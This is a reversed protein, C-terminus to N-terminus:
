RPIENVLPSQKNKEALKAAWMNAIRQETVPLGRARIKAIAEARYEAPINSLYVKGGNVNVYAKDGENLSAVSKEPDKFWEDVFVKNAKEENLLAKLVEPSAKKGGNASEWQNIKAQMADQFNSYAVAQEDSIKSDNPPIIGMERAARKMSDQVTMLQLGVPNAQGGKLGKAGLIIDNAKKMDADSFYPRYQRMLEQPTMAALQEPTANTFELWKGIDTKIAHGAARAEAEARMTRRLALRDRGDMAVLVSPPIKKGDAYLGWAADGADRQARERLTTKEADLTKLRTVIADEEKGSYKERATKLAEVANGDNLAWLADAADQTKREFDGVELLRMARERVGLTMSDANAEYYARALDVRDGDVMGQVVAAHMPSLAAALKAQKIKDDWGNAAAMEDVTTRIAGASQEVMAKDGWLMGAQNAATTLTAEWTENRLVKQQEVMHASLSGYMQRKIQAVQQRFASKQADNGLGQEIADLQQQLKEDYEDPLSKGDPRELANRGQLQLAEIQTDTRAKVAQNMADDIKVKNAERQMDLAIQGLQGGTSLLARGTEQAQRGATDAMAPADFRNQPLTNPAAQFSDYTPVRPM